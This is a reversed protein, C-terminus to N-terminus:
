CDHEAVIMGRYTGLFAREDPVIVDAQPTVHAILGDLSINWAFEAIGDYPPLQDPSWGTYDAPLGVNTAYYAIHMGSTRLVLPAHRDTWYRAFEDHTRDARRQLLLLWKFETYREGTDKQVVDRCVMQETRGAFRRESPALEAAHAEVLALAEAATDVDLWAEAVGDYPPVMDPWPGATSGVNTFDAPLGVNAVYRPCADGLAARVRPVHREIWDAVADDHAVDHRRNWFTFLKVM